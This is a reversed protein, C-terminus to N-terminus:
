LQGAPIAATFAGCDLRKALNSSTRCDRWRRSQPPKLAAKKRRSEAATCEAPHGSPRPAKRPASPAIFRKRRRPSASAISSTPTQRQFGFKNELPAFVTQSIEVFDDWNSM